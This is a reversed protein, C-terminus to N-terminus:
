MHGYFSMPTGSKGQSNRNVLQRKKKLSICYWYKFMNKEFM